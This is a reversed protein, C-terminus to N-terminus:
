SLTKFTKVTEVLLHVESKLSTIANAIAVLANVVAQNRRDEPDPTLTPFPNAMPNEKCGRYDRVGRYDLVFSEV